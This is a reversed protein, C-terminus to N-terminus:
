IIVDVHHRGSLEAEKLTLSFSIMKGLQEALRKSTRRLLSRKALNVYTKAHYVQELTMCSAIVKEAKIYIEIM